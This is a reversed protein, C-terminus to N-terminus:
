VTRSQLEGGQDKGKHRIGYKGFDSLVAFPLATSWTSMVCQNMDQHFQLRIAYMAMPSGSLDVTQPVGQRGIGGLSVWTSEVLLQALFFSQGQIFLPHTPVMFRVLTANAFLISSEM